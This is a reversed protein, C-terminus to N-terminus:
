VMTTTLDFSLWLESRSKWLDLRPRGTEWVCLHGMMKNQVVLGFTGYYSIQGVPVSGLLEGIALLGVGDRTKLWDSPIEGPSNTQEM